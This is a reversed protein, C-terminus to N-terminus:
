HRNQDSFLKKSRIRSTAPALGLVGGGIGRERCAPEYLAFVIIAVSNREMLVFDLLIAWMKSALM